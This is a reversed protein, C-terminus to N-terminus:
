GEVDFAARIMDVLPLVLRDDVDSATGAVSREIFDLVMDAFQKLMDPTLLKLFMAIATEIIRQKM